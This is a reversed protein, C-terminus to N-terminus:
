LSRVGGHAAAAGPAHVCLPLQRTRHGFVRLVNDQSLFFHLTSNAPM